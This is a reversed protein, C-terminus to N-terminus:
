NQGGLPLCYTTSHGEKEKRGEVGERKWWLGVAMMTGDRRRGCLM